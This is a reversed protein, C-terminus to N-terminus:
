HNATRLYLPKSAVEVLNVLAVKIVKSVIWSCAFLSILPM